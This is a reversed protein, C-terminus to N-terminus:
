CRGMCPSLRANHGISLIALASHLGRAGPCHKCEELAVPLPMAVYLVVAVLMCGAALTCFVFDLLRDRVLISSMGAALFAIDVLLLYIKLCRRCLAAERRHELLMLVLASITLGPIFSHWRLMALDLLCVMTTLIRVNRLAQEKM